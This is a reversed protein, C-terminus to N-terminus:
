YHATSSDLLAWGNLQTDPAELLANYFSQGGGALGAAVESLGENVWTEEDVDHHRHIVHQLEHALVNTYSASGPAVSLNMYVMERQNSDPAAEKPYADEDSVYGAVAAGLDAHLVAVRPDGDIGLAPEGFAGTVAPWVEEEFTEVAGDLDADTVDAGDEVFLYAHDSVRRLTANATRRSPEEESEAPLMIVRFQEVDGAAYAPLAVQSPPLAHRFRRALGALDRPPPADSGTSAAIATPGPVLAPTPAGGAGGCAAAILALLAVAGVADPRRLQPM